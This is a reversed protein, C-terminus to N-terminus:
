VAGHFVFFLPDFIERGLEAEPIRIMDTRVPEEGPIQPHNLGAIPDASSHRKRNIDMNGEALNLAAIAIEKRHRAAVAIKIELLGIDFGEDALDILPPAGERSPLNDGNEKAASCGGEEGRFEQILEERREPTM